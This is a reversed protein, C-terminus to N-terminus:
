SGPKRRRAGGKRPLETTSRDATLRNTPPEFGEGPAVVKRGRRGAPNKGKGRHLARRVQEFLFPALSRGYTATIHGWTSFVAVGGVVPACTEKGCYLDSLDLFRANRVLKSAAEQSDEREFAESRPVACLRAAALTHEQVCEIVEKNMRPVDRIAIIRTGRATQESWASVLGAVETQHESKGPAVVLPFGELHTVLIADYPQSESLHERVKALWEPCEELTKKAHKQPTAATLYCGGKGMVDIRWGAHNAMWEYASILANNHSDGIAALRRTFGSQPGLTCIRLTSEGNDSWCSGRNAGDRLVLEPDPVIRTAPPCPRFLAGAGFCPADTDYLAQGVRLSHLGFLCIAVAVTAGALSWGAVTRGSGPRLPRERIPIEVYRTTVWGLVIALLATGPKAWISDAGLWRPVLQILPWHWLYVAYSVDGVLQVPWPRMLRGALGEVHAAWIVLATGLVPLAALYGPFPTHEDFLLGAAVILALGLWVAPERLRRPARWRTTALVGGVAFEWARTTTAFYAVAPNTRTLYISYAFSVAAIGALLHPLFRTHLRLKVFVVILLPLAIYFQEEMSLTWFHQVISPKNASALYNISDHALLWNQVYAVSAIIERFAQTWFRRSSFALTALAALTLVTLSSPLLRRARRTWFRALSIRGSAAERALLGTILFGSIVFFSDVGVYGGSVAQPWLHYTLVLLVALARLAQIDARLTSGARVPQDLDLTRESM